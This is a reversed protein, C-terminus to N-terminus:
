AVGVVLDLQQDAVVATARLAAVPAPLAQDAHALPDRQV